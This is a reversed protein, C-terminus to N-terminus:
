GKFWKAEAERRNMLGKSPKGDANVYKLMYKLIEDKSRTGKATLQDISGINFAFSTLADLQNDTFKYRNKKAHRIVADRKDSLERRLEAEGEERTMGVQGKKGVTGYGISHQKIDDYADENWGEFGMVTSVLTDSLAGKSGVVSGDRTDTWGKKADSSFDKGDPSMYMRPHGAKKFKSPLHGDFDVNDLQGADYAARYDYFHRYDSPDSSIGAEAAYAKYAAEFRVDDPTVPKWGEQGKIPKDWSVNPDHQNANDIVIRNIQEFSMKSVDGKSHLINLLDARQKGQRMHIESGEKIWDAMAAPDKAKTLPDSGSGRVISFALNRQFETNGLSKNKEGWLHKFMKMKADQTVVQKDGVRQTAGMIKDIEKQHFYPALNEEKNFFGDHIYTDRTYEVVEPKRAEYSDLVRNVRKDAEKIAWDKKSKVQIEKGERMSDLKNILEDKRPSDAINALMVLREAYGNDQPQGNPKYTTLSREFESILREQQAPEAYFKKLDANNRNVYYDRMAQSTTADMKKERMVKALDAESKIGAGDIMNKVDTVNDMKNISSIRKAQAVHQDLTEQSVGTIKGAEAEEVFLDPDDKYRKKLNSNVQEFDMDMLAKEGRASSMLGKEVNESILARAEDHMGRARLDNLRNEVSQTANGLIAKHATRSVDIGSKGEFQNFYSNAQDRLTGSMDMGDLEARKNEMLKTYEDRWKIADNPNSMMKEQFGSYTKDLDLQLDAMKGANHQKEAEEFIGSVQMGAGELDKGMSAFAKGVQSAAGASMNVRTNGGQVMKYDPLQM